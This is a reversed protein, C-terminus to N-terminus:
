RERDRPSREEEEEQLFSKARAQFILESERAAQSGPNPRPVLYGYRQVLATAVSRFQVDGELRDFIADDTLDSESVLQGHSTADKAVWRKLEVMLGIDKLLVTKIEPAAAAVRSLNQRSLKWRRLRFLRPRQEQAVSGGVFLPLGICALLLRRSIEKVRTVVDATMMAAVEAYAANKGSLVLVGAESAEIENSQVKLSAWYFM